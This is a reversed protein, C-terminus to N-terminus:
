CVWEPLQICIVDFCATCSFGKRKGVPQLSIYLYSTFLSGALPVFLHNSAPKQQGFYHFVLINFGSFSIGNDDLGM